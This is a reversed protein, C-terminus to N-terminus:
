VLDLSIRPSPAPRPFILQSRAQYGLVGFKLHNEDYTFILEADKQSWTSKQPFRGMQPNLFLKFYYAVDRFCRFEPM